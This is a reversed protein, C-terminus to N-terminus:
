GGLTRRHYGLGSLVSRKSLRCCILSENRVERCFRLFVVVYCSPVFKGGAAFVKPHSTSYKGPPTEYNSRADLKLDLETSIYKEPGLFGMALLVLDCKYVQISIFFRVSYYTYLM